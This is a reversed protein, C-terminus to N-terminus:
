QKSLTSFTTSLNKDFSTLNEAQNENQLVWSFFSSTDLVTSFNQGPTGLSVNLYYKGNALTLPFIVSDEKQLNRLQGYHDDPGGWTNKSLIGGKNALIVFFGLFYSIVCVNKM